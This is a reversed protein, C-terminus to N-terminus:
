RILAASPIEGNEHTSSTASILQMIQEVNEQVGQFKGSTLDLQARAGPIQTDSRVSTVHEVNIHILKGGPETLKIWATTRGAIRQPAAFLSKEETPFARAADNVAGTRGNSTTTLVRRQAVLGHYDIRNNTDALVASATGFVLLAALAMTGKRPM